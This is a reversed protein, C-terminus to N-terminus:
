SIVLFLYRKCYQIHDDSLEQDSDLIDRLDAEMLDTVFYVDGFQEYSEPVVVEKLGVINEHQLHILIKLERLIRKQSLVSRYHSPAKATKTEYEYPDKCPFIGKNKKIAVPENTEVNRGASISHILSKLLECVM